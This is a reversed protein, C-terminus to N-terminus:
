GDTKNKYTLYEAETNPYCKGGGFILLYDKPEEAIACVTDLGYIGNLHWEKIKYVTHRMESEGFRVYGPMDEPKREQWWELRQFLNPYEAITSEAVYNEQGINEGFEDRYATTTLHWRGAVSKVQEGVQYPSHPYPGTVKIRPKLLEEKTLMVETKLLTEFFQHV